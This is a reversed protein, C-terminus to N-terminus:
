SQTGTRMPKARAHKETRERNELRLLSGYAATENEAVRSAKFAESDFLENYIKEPSREEKCIKLCKEISDMNYTWYNLRWENNNFKNRSRILEFTQISKLIDKDELEYFVTRDYPFLVNDVVYDNYGFFCVLYDALADADNKSLGLDKYDYAAFIAKALTEKRVVM